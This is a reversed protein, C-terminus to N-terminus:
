LSGVLLCGKAPRLRDSLQQKNLSVHQTFNDNGLRKVWAVVDMLKGSDVGVASHPVGLGASAAVPPSGPGFTVTGDVASLRQQFVKDVTILHHAVYMCNNHHLASCSLGCFHIVSINPIGVVSVVTASILSAVKVTWNRVFGCLYCVV